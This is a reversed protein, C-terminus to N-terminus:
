CLVLYAAFRVFLTHHSCQVNALHVFGQLSNPWHTGPLFPKTPHLTPMIGKYFLQASREALAFQGLLTIAGDLSNANHFLRDAAAKTKVGYKEALRRVGLHLSQQRLDPSMYFRNHERVLQEGARNGAVRRLTHGRQYTAGRTGEILDKGSGLGPRYQYNCAQLIRAVETSDQTRCFAESGDANQEPLARDAREVRLHHTPRGTRKKPKGDHSDLHGLDKWFQPLAADAQDSSRRVLPSRQRLRIEGTAYRHDDATFTGSNGAIEHCLDILNQGDWV